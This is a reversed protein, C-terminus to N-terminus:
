GRESNGICLGWARRAQPLPVHDQLRRDIAVLMQIASDGGEELLAHQQGRFLGPVSGAGAYKNM